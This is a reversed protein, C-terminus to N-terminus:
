GYKSWVKESIMTIKLARWFTVNKISFRSVEEAHSKNGWFLCFIYSCKLSRKINIIWLGSSVSSLLFHNVPPFRINYQTFTKWYFENVEWSGRFEGTWKRWIFVDSCMMEMDEKIFHKRVSVKGETFESSEVIEPHIM